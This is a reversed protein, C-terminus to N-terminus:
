PTAGRQLRPVACKSWDVCTPDVLVGQAAKRIREELMVTTGPEVIRLAETMVLLLEIICSTAVTRRWPEPLDPV